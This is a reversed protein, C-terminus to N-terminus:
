RHVSHGRNSVKVSSPTGAGPQHPDSGTRFRNRHAAILRYFAPGIAAFPRTAALRAL